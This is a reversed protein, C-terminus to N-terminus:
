DMAKTTGTTPRNTVMSTRDESGDSVGGSDTDGDLPDTTTNTRILFSSGADCSRERRCDIIYQLMHGLISPVGRVLPVVWGGDRFQTARYESDEMLIEHVKPLAWWPCTPYLHHTQHLHENLQATVFHLIPNVWRNRTMYLEDGPYRCYPFHEALEIYFGVMPFTTVLPVMWFLVLEQGFGLRALVTALGIFWSLCAIQELLEMRTAPRVLLRNRILDWVKTPTKALLLPSVLFRLLFRVPSLEGYTQILLQFRLDPDRQENGLFVHHQSHTKSYAVWSQLIPYGSFLTGCCYNWISNKAFTRHSRSTEHLVTALSRQWCGLTPLSVFLYIPWWGVADQLLYPLAISAAILSYIWLLAICSHWNDPADAIVSKVRTEIDPSFRRRKRHSPIETTM